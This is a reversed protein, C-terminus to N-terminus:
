VNWCDDVIPNEQRFRERAIGLAVDQNEAFILNGEDNQDRRYIMFPTKISQDERSQRQCEILAQSEIGNWFKILEKVLRKLLRRRQGTTYDAQTELSEIIHQSTM